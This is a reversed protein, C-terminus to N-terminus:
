ANDEDEGANLIAEMEANKLLQNYTQSEANICGVFKVDIIDEHNFLFMIEDNIYGEPFVCSIYDYRNGDEDIQETGVIMLSKKADKLLVVSGIPLLNKM